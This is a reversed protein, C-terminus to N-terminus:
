TEDLRGNCTQGTSKRLRVNDTKQQKCTHTSKVRQSRDCLYVIRSASLNENSKRTSQAVADCAGGRRTRGKIAYGGSREHTFVECFAWSLAGGDEAGGMAAAAKLGRRIAETGLCSSCSAAWSARPGICARKLGYSKLPPHTGRPV